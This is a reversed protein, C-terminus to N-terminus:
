ATGRLARWQAFTVPYLPEALEALARAYLRIEHQAGEHDRLELFHLLSRVNFTYFSDVYLGLPLVMRAQERAVGRELLALYARWAEQYAEHAINRNYAHWEPLQDAEVSAQRNSPAQQRWHLPMYFEDELERYRGSAENKSVGARHRVWQRDVFVPCTVQFTLLTHEFPSGHHHRLLYRILKEEREGVEAPVDAGTSVRAAAVIMLDSGVHQVLQVRSVGDNMPDIM